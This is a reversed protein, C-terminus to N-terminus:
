WSALASKNASLRMVTRKKEIEAEAIIMLFNHGEQAKHIELTHTDSSILTDIKYKNFMPGFITQCNITGHWDVSHFHPLPHLNTIQFLHHENSIKGICTM